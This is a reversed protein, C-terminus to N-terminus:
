DLYRMPRSWHIRHPAGCECSLAVLDLVEGNQWPFRACLSVHYHEDMKVLYDQIVETDGM